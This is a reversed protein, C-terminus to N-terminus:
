ITWVIRGFHAPPTSPPEPGLVPVAEVAPVADQNIARDEPVPQVQPRGDHFAARRQTVESLSIRCCSMLENHLVKQGEESTSWAKLLVERDGARPVYTGLRAHKGSAAEVVAAVEGKSPQIKKRITTSSKGSLLLQRMLARDSFAADVDAPSTLIM